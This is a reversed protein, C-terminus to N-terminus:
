SVRGSVACEYAIDFVEKGSLLSGHGKGQASSVINKNGGCACMRNHLEPVSIGRKEAELVNIAEEFGNRDFVNPQRVVSWRPYQDGNRDTYEPDFVVAVPYRANGWNRANGYEGPAEIFAVDGCTEVAFEKYNNRKRQAALATIQNRSMEGVLVQGIKNIKEELTRRESSNDGNIIAQMADVAERNGRLRPYMKHANHFGDRDIAGIWATLWRDIKDGKGQARLNFISMAGFADRDPRITVIRAGDPPLPYELAMEIASSYGEGGRNHQPDINGLGCRDSLKKIVVEVGLTNPGLLSDNHREAEPSADLRLIGYSYGM